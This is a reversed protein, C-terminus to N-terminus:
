INHSWFLQQEIFYFNGDQEWHTRGFLNNLNQHFQMSEIDENINRFTQCCFKSIEGYVNNLNDRISTICWGWVWYSWSLVLMANVKMPETELTKLLSPSIQVTQGLREGQPQLLHHSLSSFTPDMLLSSTLLQSICIARYRVEHLRPAKALVRWLPYISWRVTLLQIRVALM